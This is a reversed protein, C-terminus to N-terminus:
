LWENEKLIWAHLHTKRVYFVIPDKPVSFSAEQLARAAGQDPGRGQAPVKIETNRRQLWPGSCGLLSELLHSGTVLRKQNTIFIGSAGSCQTCIRSAMASEKTDRSEIKLAPQDKGHLVRVSHAIM